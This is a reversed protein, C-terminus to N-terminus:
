IALLVQWYSCHANEKMFDRLPRFADALNLKRKTKKIVNGWLTVNFAIICNGYGFLPCM